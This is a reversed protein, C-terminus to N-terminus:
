TTAFSDTYYPVQKEVLRRASRAMRSRARPVTSKSSHLSLSPSMSNTHTHSLHLLRERRIQSLESSSSPVHDSSTTNSSPYILTTILQPSSSLSAADNKSVNPSLEEEDKAADKAAPKTAKEAPAAAVQVLERTLM